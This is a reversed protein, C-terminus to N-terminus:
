IFYQDVMSMKKEYRCPLPASTDDGREEKEKACCWLLVKVESRERGRVQEYSHEIMGSLDLVDATGSPDRADM